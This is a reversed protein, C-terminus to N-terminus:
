AVDSWFFMGLSYITSLVGFAVIGHLWVREATGLRDGCFHLYCLSPVSFATLATFPFTTLATCPLATLATFAFPLATLATGETVCQASGQQHRVRTANWGM